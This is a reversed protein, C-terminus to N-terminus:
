EALQKGINDAPGLHQGDNAAQGGHRREERRQVLEDARLDVEDGVGSAREAEQQLYPGM